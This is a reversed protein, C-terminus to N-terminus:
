CGEHGGWEGRARGVEVSRLWGGCVVWCFVESGLKGCVVVGMQQLIWLKWLRSHDGVLTGWGEAVKGRTGPAQQLESAVKERTTLRTCVLRQLGRGPLSEEGRAQVHMHYCSLITKVHGLVACVDGRRPKGAALLLLHTSCDVWENRAGLVHVHKDDSM